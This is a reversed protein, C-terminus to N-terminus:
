AQAARGADDTEGFGDTFITVVPVRRAFCEECAALVDQPPVMVFAHDIDGPVEALSPYAPLGLVARRGRNIPAILGTYGHKQLYRQPRATNKAPDGSAGFLAVGRPAFLARFLASSM